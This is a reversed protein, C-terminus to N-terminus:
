AIGQQGQCTSSLCTAKTSSLHPDLGLRLMADAAQQYSDLNSSSSMNLSTGSGSGILPEAESLGEKKMKFGWISIQFPTLFIFRLYIIVWDFGLFIL